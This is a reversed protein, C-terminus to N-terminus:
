AYDRRQLELPSRQKASDGLGWLYGIAEGLAGASLAPIMPLLVWPLLQGQRGTRFIHSVIRKMRVLPVLPCACAFVIRKLLSFNGARARASGLGRQGNFDLKCYAWFDAVNIHGSEADGALWLVGGKSKWDLFLASEDEMMAQLLPGYSLLMATRYSAHHGGLLQVPGSEAPAVVPGFQGYLHAWSVMKEPNNNLMAFGVVDHGAEHARILADAWGPEFTAHEEAYTVYPCQAARVAAAMAAGCERSEPLPVHRVAWFRQLVGEDVGEASKSVILLELEHALDQKALSEIAERCDAASELGITFVSLKM